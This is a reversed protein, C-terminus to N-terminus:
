GSYRVDHDVRRRHRILSQRPQELHHARLMVATSSTVALGVFSFSGMFLPLGLQGLVQDRQSRAYRTFDSISLAMAGWSGVNATLSPFFLAWFEAPSLKIPQNLMPGLGGAKVYAWSLLLSALSILIPAPACGKWLVALQALWFVALLVVRLPSTALWTDAEGLVLKKRIFSPPHIDSTRRAMDRHWVLWLRRACPAPRPRPGWSSRLRLPRPRPVPYRIQYGTPRPPHSPPPPRGQSRRRRHSGAVVDHGERSADRRHLEALLLALLALSPTHTHTHKPPPWLINARVKYTVNAIYTTM